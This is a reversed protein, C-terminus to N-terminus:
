VKPTVAQLHFTGHGQCLAEDVIRRKFQKVHARVLEAGLTDHEEALRKLAISAKLTKEQISIIHTYHPSAAPHSLLTTLAQAQDRTAM